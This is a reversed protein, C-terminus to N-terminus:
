LGGRYHQHQPAAMGEGLRFCRHKFSPWEGYGEAIEQLFCYLTSKAPGHGRIRRVEAGALRYSLHIVQGIGAEMVERQYRRYAEIRLRRVLPCFFERKERDYVQALPYCIPGFSTQLKGPRPQRGNRWYRGPHARMYGEVAKKELAKMNALLVQRM